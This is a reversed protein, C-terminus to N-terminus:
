DFVMELDNTGTDAFFLLMQRKWKKFKIVNRLDRIVDCWCFLLRYLCALFFARTIWNDRVNWECISLLKCAQQQTNSIQFSFSFFRCAPCPSLPVYFFSSNVFALHFLSRLIFSHIFVFWWLGNITMACRNWTCQRLIHIHILLRKKHLILWDTTPGKM